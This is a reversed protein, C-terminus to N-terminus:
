KGLQAVVRAIVRMLVHTPLVETDSLVPRGTEDLILEKVATVINATDGSSVAALKMFTSMPQRDWTWFEIAEGYQDLIDQDDIAIKILQPKAALSSLKM